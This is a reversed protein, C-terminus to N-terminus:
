SVDVEGALRVILDEVVHDGEVVLEIAEQPCAEACRGCGRCAEGIHARGDRLHIAGVFCVGTCTGCGVCRDTVRVQLGPMRHVKRGIEPSLDPLVRWLCCCPCCNCITFLREGPGVGLWVTDLKNRGVLHVLGAERCRRVHELAEDPTVPRGLRPNIGRAAEGLFLCGLDIPYDRCGEAERCICTHMIWHFSAQRIFHEAVQSPVVVDVSPRPRENVVVVQRRPLYVLDDGHFLWRDLFAGWLPARSTKAVLFRQPFAKRILSVLWVPRAM